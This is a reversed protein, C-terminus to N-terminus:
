FVNIEDHLTGTTELVFDPADSDIPVTFYLSVSASNALSFVLFHMSTQQAFASAIAFLVLIM